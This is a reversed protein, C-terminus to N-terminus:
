QHPTDGKGTNTSDGRYSADILQFLITPINCPIHHLKPPANKLSMRHRSCVRVFMRYQTINQHSQAVCAGFISWNPNYLGELYLHSLVLYRCGRMCAWTVSVVEVLRSHVLCWVMTKKKIQTYWCSLSSFCFNTYWSIVSPPFFLQCITIGLNCRWTATGQEVKRLNVAFM